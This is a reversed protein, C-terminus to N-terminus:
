PRHFLESDVVAHIMSRLGCNNKGAAKAVADVAAQDAKTVPRGCGYILLKKALARAITDPDELLLQRFEVFDAFERGNAMEGGKEVPPGVRYYVKPVREGTNGLSRYWERQGGIVDFQELAFGPPDIRVHCRACSSNKRHLDLQQRITTAGRIDPEVAPVGPPPPPAPQGLLNDLVWVGRIVPSTNTGNATVKLVGAQTLVGGRICDEPLSIVRFQEHGRVGPIGYHTALRQNLVAFDSDIFNLVTLDNELIHRFFGRTEALMSRLLLEDYEPYLKKDPTTFEIERLDLWQGTFNNVFREIKPDNIM